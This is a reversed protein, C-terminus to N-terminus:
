TGYGPNYAASVVQAAGQTAGAMGQLMKAAQAKASQMILKEVVSAKKPIKTELIEMMIAAQPGLEALAEERMGAEMGKLQEDVGMNKLFEGTRKAQQAEVQRFAMQMHESVIPGIIPKLEEAMEAYDIALSEEDFKPLTATLKEVEPRILREQITGLIRKDEESEGTLIGVLLLKSKSAARPAAVKAAMLFSWTAALIAGIIGTLSAVMLPDIM